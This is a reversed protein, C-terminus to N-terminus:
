DPALFGHVTAANFSGATVFFCLLRGPAVVLQPTLETKLVAGGRAFAPSSYHHSVLSVGQGQSSILGVVPAGPTGSTASWTVGTVILVKGDPIAFVANEGNPFQQNDLVFGGFPCPQGSQNVKVIDSPKKPALGGAASTTLPVLLLLAAPLLRLM